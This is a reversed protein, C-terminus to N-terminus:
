QGSFRRSARELTRREEETLSALGHENIKDLIPDVEDRMLDTSQSSPARRAVAEEDLEVLRRRQPLAMAPRRAASRYPRSAAEWGPFIGGYGQSRAYYWGAVAGGFHALYAVPAGGGSLWGPLLGFLDLTGMGLNFILLVRALSWLRFRVPIIFMLLLCVEEQPLAVAFALLLGMISASAGMLYADGAVTASAVALQLAAGALGSLVYIM